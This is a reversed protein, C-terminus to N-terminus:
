DDREPTGNTEASGSSGDGAPLRPSLGRDQVPRGARDLTQGKSVLLTVGGPLVRSAQFRGKGQTTDGV